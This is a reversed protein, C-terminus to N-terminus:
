DTSEISEEKDTLKFASFTDMALQCTERLATWYHKGEDSRSASISMELWKMEEFLQPASGIWIKEGRKEITFPKEFRFPLYFGSKNSHLMLHEYITKKTLKLWFPLSGENKAAIKQLAKLESEEGIPRAEIRKTWNLQERFPVLFGLRQMNVELTQYFPDEKINEKEIIPQIYATIM